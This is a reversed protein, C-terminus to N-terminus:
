WIVAVIQLQTQSEVCNILILISTCKIHIWECAISPGTIVIESYIILYIINRTYVWFQAILGCGISKIRRCCQSAPLARILVVFGVGSVQGCVCVCDITPQANGAHCKHLVWHRRCSSEFYTGCLSSALLMLARLYCYFCSSMIAHMNCAAHPMHCIGYPIHPLSRLKLLQCGHSPM